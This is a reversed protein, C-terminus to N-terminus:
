RGQKKNRDNKDRKYFDFLPQKRLFKHTLPQTQNSSMTQYLMKATRKKTLRTFPKNLM